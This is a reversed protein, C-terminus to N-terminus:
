ARHCEEHYIDKESRLWLPGTGDWTNTIPEYSWPFRGDCKECRGWLWRKLQQL